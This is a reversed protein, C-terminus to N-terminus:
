QVEESPGCMALLIQQAEIHRRALDTFVTKPGYGDAAADDLMQIIDRDKDKDLKISITRYKDKYYNYNM